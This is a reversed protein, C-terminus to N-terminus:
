AVRCEWLDFRSPRRQRALRAVLPRAEYWLPYRVRHRRWRVGLAHSATRLRARTLFEIFPLGLLADAREGFRAAAQRQKEAVMAAGDRERRYFPSDLIVLRGGRRAVRAAEGLVQALDLAYHLSANFVVLDFARDPHPLADFSACVRAFAAGDRDLYGRAAGLGDVADERVDLAVARHGHLALRHCLWGNGAGVDLVDLVRGISRAMPRLVLNLLAEYSRARVRWQRAIPGRRLYPLEHLEAPSLM